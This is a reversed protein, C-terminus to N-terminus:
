FIDYIFIKHKTFFFFFFAFMKKVFSKKIKTRKFKTRRYKTVNLWSDNRHHHIIGIGYIGNQWTFFMFFYKFYKKKQSNVLVFLPILVAHFNYFLQLFFCCSKTSISFTKFEKKNVLLFLLFFLSINNFTISLQYQKVNRTFFM